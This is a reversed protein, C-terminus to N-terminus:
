FSFDFFYLGAISSYPYFYSRTISDYFFLWLIFIHSLNCFLLIKRQCFDLFCNILFKSILLITDILLVTCILYCMSVITKKASSAFYSLVNMFLIIQYLFYIKDSFASVKQSTDANKSLNHKTISMTDFYIYIINTIIFYKM